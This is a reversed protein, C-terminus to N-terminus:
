VGIDPQDALMINKINTHHTRGDLWRVYALVYGGGFDCIELVVARDLASSSSIDAISKLFPVTYKVKDGVKLIETKAM